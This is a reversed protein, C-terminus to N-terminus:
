QIASMYKPPLHSPFESSLYIFFTAKSTPLRYTTTSVMPQICDNLFQATYPLSYPLPFLGSGQFCWYKLSYSISAPSISILHAPFYFSPKLLYKQLSHIFTEDQIHSHNAISQSFNNHLTKHSPQRLVKILKM